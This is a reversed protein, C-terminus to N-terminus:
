SVGHVVGSFSFDGFLASPASRRRALQLAAAVAGLLTADGRLSSVVLRPARPLREELRATLTAVFPELARGVPGDLIVLGPDVIAGVAILVLCVHDLLEDIVTGAIPDRDAAAQFLEEIRAPRDPSAWRRDSPEALDRARALLSDTSTVAEVAGVTGELPRRADAPDLILYGVEGGGNHRGKVLRGNAVVAGGVGAGLYLTFFDDVHRGDGRWAHALAALNV